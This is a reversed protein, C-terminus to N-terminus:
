AVAEGTHRRRHRYVFFIILSLFVPGGVAYPLIGGPNLQTFPTVTLHIGSSAVPQSTSEQSEPSPIAVMYVMYDGDLIANVRWSLNVSQGPALSESYQTRQPSWDEPDVIDGKADLNIINMAMILPPSAETGRNTLVTNYKVPTGAQVVKAGIDIEVQLPAADSNKSDEKESQAIAPSTSMLAVLCGIVALSAAASAARRKFWPFATAKGGEARLGPSAYWFLLVFVILAFAVPSILYTWFEAITRNNVLLAALFHRPAGM